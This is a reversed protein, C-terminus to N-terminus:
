GQQRCFVNVYVTDFQSPDLKRGSSDSNSNSLGHVETVSCQSLPATTNANIQVHYGRSQLEHVTDVASGGGTPMASAGAVPTLATMAFAAGLV